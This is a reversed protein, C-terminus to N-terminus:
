YKYPGNMYKLIYIYYIWKYGNQIGLDITKTILGGQLM